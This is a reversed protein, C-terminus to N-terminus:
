PRWPSPGPSCSRRRCWRRRLGSFVATLARIMALFGVAKPIWSLVAAIVTPSGQYVDPAYFHLPVAAVRFGLGAM